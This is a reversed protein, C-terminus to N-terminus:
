LLLKELDRAVIIKGKYVRRAQAKIKSEKGELRNSYHIMVLTDVGADRAITAADSPTCHNYEHAKEAEEDPFTAEHILVDCHTALEKIKSSPATDGSYCISFELNGPIQKIDLRIGLSAPDHIGRACTTKIIFNTYNELLAFKKKDKMANAELIPFQIAGEPTSTLKFLKKVRDHVYPLAIIEV